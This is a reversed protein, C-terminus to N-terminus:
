LRAEVQSAQAIVMWIPLHITMGSCGLAKHAAAVEQIRLLQEDTAPLEKLFDMFGPHPPLYRDLFFTRCTFGNSQCLHDLSRGIMPDGGAQSIIEKWIEKSAAQPPYEMMGDYDPEIMVLRGNPRLVRRCEQLVEDRARMWLLSYQTFVIDYAGSAFPLGAADGVVFTVNNWLDSPVSNSAAEIAFSNCDVGTVHAGSRSALEITTQGWGCGLDLIACAQHIRAVRLLRSRAGQLWESQLNAILRSPLSAPQFPVHSVVDANM